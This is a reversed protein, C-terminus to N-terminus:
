APVPEPLQPVEIPEGIPECEIEFPDDGIDGATLTRPALERNHIPM